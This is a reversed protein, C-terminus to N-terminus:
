PRTGHERRGIRPLTLWDAFLRQNDRCAAAPLICFRGTGIIRTSELAVADLKENEMRGYDGEAREYGKVQEVDDIPKGTETDVYQAQVRNGTKWNLTRLLSRRTKRRRPWCDGGSLHCAVSAILTGDPDGGRALFPVRLG